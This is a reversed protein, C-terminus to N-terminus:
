LTCGRDSVCDVCVLCWRGRWLGGEVVGGDGYGLHVKYM